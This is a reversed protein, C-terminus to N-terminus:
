LCDLESKLWQLCSWWLVACKSRVLGYVKQVAWYKGSVHNQYSIFLCYFFFYNLRAPQCTHYPFCFNKFTVWKLIFKDKVCLQFRRGCQVISDQTWADLLDTFWNLTSWILWFSFTLGCYISEYGIVMQPFFWLRKYGLILICIRRVTGWVNGLTRVFLIKKDFFFFFAEKTPSRKM